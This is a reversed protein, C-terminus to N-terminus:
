PTDDAAFSNLLGFVTHTGLLYSDTPTGLVAVQEALADIRDRLDQLRTHIDGSNLLDAIVDAQDAAHEALASVGAILNRLTIGGDADAQSIGTSQVLLYTNSRIQLVWTQSPDALGQTTVLQPFPPIVANTLINYVDDITAM